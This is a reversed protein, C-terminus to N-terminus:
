NENEPELITPENGWTEQKNEGSLRDEMLMLGPQQGHAAQEWLIQNRKSVLENTDLDQLTGTPQASPVPPVDQNRNQTHSAEELKQQQHQQEEDVQERSNHAAAAQIDSAPSEGSRPGAGQDAASM